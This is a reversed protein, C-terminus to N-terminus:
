REAKSLSTKANFNVVKRQNIVKIKKDCKKTLSMENNVKLAEVNSMDVESLGRKRTTITKVESLALLDYGNCM